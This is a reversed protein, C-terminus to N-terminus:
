LDRLCAELQLDSEYKGGWYDWSIYRFPFTDVKCGVREAVMELDSADVGVGYFNSKNVNMKLGSCIYFVRLIRIVALVNEESWEGLIIADDAYFLHSVCSGGNPLSIGKFIGAGVAKNTFLSLAEMVVLFLFPSLPDGQRMGKFCPFDFTPAGNVLVSARASSLVGNVWSCWRPPFGLQELVGVVFNWNVNDYAKEFDIKLVFAPKKEKKLWSYIENVVLPGDLIFKNKLFASQSDSIVSGLVMKLRNALIKSIVKNVVGVLSIPRYDGLGSPDKKKPILAIFSGACGRNIRGSSYFEDLISQFDSEFISWFHKFFRFNFGDPGPARDSGCEFVARRIEGSGFEEILLAGLSDPLRRESDLSFSPRVIAKEKFKDRFFEFVYKKIRNPKDCWAGNIIMGFIGNRAKRSNVVSHFYKSNEDGDRIWRDRSRQKLDKTKNDEFERIIRKAESMAWDEEEILDREELIRELGELEVRATAIEGEEKDKLDDRWEKIRDRIFKLKKCLMVDPPGEGRFSAAANCVVEEYGARGIWSNFVRFPKPGFNSSKISLLLPCHDSFLNSLALLCADTWKNFFDASVFFRDIKSMKRGSAVWRTYQRDQMKYELLGANFIFSNFNSACRPKFM